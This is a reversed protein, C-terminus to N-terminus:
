RSGGYNKYLIGTLILLLAMLRSVYIWPSGENPHTSFVLACRNVAEVFFFIAFPLFFADRTDRWFRIFFVGAMLSLASILGLMFSAIM